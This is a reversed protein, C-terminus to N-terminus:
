HEIGGKGRHKERDASQRSVLEKFHSLQKKLSPKGRKRNLTKATYEAFAANLADADRAKFFVLYKGQSPDKKLAFDVGYKRAVREFSKINKDTIEINQVGGGQEVLSKVSQKGHQPENAQRQYQRIAWKLLDATLKGGNKGVRIVLAVSKDRVEDQM